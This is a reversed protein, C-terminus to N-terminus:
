GLDSIIEQYQKRTIEGRAYRLQAIEKPSSVADPSRSAYQGGSEAAVKRVAWVILLVIGITVGITLVLNLILGATGFTGFGGGMMGGM